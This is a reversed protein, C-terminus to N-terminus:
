LYKGSKRAYQGFGESLMDPTAPIITRPHRFPQGSSGSLAILANKDHKFSYFM